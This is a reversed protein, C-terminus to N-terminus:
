AIPLDVLCVNPEPLSPLGVFYMSRRGHKSLSRNRCRPTQAESSAMAAVIGEPLRAAEKTATASLVKTARKLQGEPSDRPPGGRVKDLCPKRLLKLAAITVSDRAPNGKMGRGTSPVRGRHHNGGEATTAIGKGRDERGWVVLTDIDFEELKELIRFPRFADADRMTNITNEWSAAAWPQAYCLPLIALLEQSISAPDHFTSKLRERGMEPSSTTLTPKYNAYIKATFEALQAETNFASGSGNIVLKTIRTEDALYLNDRFCLVM